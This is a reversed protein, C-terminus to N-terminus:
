PGKRLTGGKALLVSRVVRWGGRSFMSCVIKEALKPFVTSCATIVEQQPQFLGSIANPPHQPCGDDGNSCRGYLGSRAGHSKQAKEVM